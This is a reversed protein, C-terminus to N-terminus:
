LTESKQKQFMLTLYDEFFSRYLFILYSDDSLLDKDFLTAALEKFSRPTKGEFVTECVLCFDWDDETSFPLVHIEGCHPCIQVFSDVVGWIRLLHHNIEDRKLPTQFTSKKKM